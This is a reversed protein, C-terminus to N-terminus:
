GLTVWPRKAGVNEKGKGKGETGPWECKLHLRHCRFCAGDGDQVCEHEGVVCKDCKPRDDIRNNTTNSIRSSRAIESDTVFDNDNDPM